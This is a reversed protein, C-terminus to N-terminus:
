EREYKERRVNCSLIHRRIHYCRLANGNEDLGKKYGNIIIVNFIKGFRFYQIM